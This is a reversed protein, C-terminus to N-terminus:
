RSTLALSQISEILYDGTLSAALWHCFFTSAVGWFELDLWPKFNDAVINIM